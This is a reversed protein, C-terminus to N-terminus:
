NKVLRYQMKFAHLPLSRQQASAANDASVFRVTGLTVSKVIVDNEATSFKDDLSFRQGSTIKPIPFLSFFFKIM